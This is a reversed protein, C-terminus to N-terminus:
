PYVGRLIASHPPLHYYSLAVPVISVIIGRHLEVIDVVGLGFWVATMGGIRFLHLSIDVESGVVSEVLHENFTPVDSPFVPRIHPFAVHEVENSWIGIEVDLSQVLICM